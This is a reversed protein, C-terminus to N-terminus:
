SQRNVREIENCLAQLDTEDTGTKARRYLSLIKVTGKLAMAFAVVILLIGVACASLAAVPRLGEDICVEAAEGSPWLAFGLLVLLAGGAVLGIEWLRIRSFRQTQRHTETFALWIVIVGALSVCVQQFIRCFADWSAPHVTSGLALVFLGFASVAAVNRWVTKRIRVKLEDASSLGEKENLM